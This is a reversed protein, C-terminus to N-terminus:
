DPNKCGHELNSLNLFDVLLKLLVRYSTDLLDNELIEYHPYLITVLVRLNYSCISGRHMRHLHIKIGILILFFSSVDVM